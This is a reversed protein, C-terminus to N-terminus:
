STESTSGANKPNCTTGAEPNSKQSQKAIRLSKRTGESKSAPLSPTGKNTTHALARCYADGEVYKGESGELGEVAVQYGLDPPMFRYPSNKLAVKESSYRLTEHIEHDTLRIIYKKGPGYKNSACVIGVALKGGRGYVNKVSVFQGCLEDEVNSGAIPNGWLISHIFGITETETSEPWPTLCDRYKLLIEQSVVM